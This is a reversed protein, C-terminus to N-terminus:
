RNFLNAGRCYLKSKNPTEVVKRSQDDKCSSELYVVNFLLTIYDSCLPFFSGILM